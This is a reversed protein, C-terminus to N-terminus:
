GEPRENRIWPIVSNRTILLSTRSLYSILHTRGACSIASHVPGFNEAGSNGGASNQQDSSNALDQGFARADLVEADFTHHEQAGHSAEPDGEVGAVDPQAQQSGDSGAAQQAKSMRNHGDM